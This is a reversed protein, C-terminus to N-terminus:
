HVNKNLIVISYRNHNDLVFEEEDKQWGESLKTELFETIYNNAKDSTEFLKIKEYQSDGELCKFIFVIVKM